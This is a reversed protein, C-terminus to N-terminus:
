HIGPSESLLIDAKRMLNLNYQVFNELGADYEANGLSNGDHDLAKPTFQSEFSKASVISNFNMVSILKNLMYGLQIAPIRGGRGSSIGCTAFIKGEWCDAFDKKGIQNILNIIEPTPFWNYEPSLIFILKSEALCKHVSAGFSSLHGTKLSGGNSFPIDYDEFNPIEIQSADLGKEILIRKIAKGVRATNSNTRSSGCLIGIM